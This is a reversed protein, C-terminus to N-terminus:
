LGLTCVHRIGGGKGCHVESVQELRIRAGSGRPYTREFGAKVWFPVNYRQSEMGTHFDGRKDLAFAQLM